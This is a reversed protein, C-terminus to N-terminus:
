TRQYLIKWIGQTVTSACTLELKADIDLAM